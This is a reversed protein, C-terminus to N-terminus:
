KNKGLRGEIWSLRQDISRLYKTADETVTENASVRNEVKGLWFAAAMSTALATGSASLLLFMWGIPVKTKDDM